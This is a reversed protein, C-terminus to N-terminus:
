PAEEERKAGLIRNRADAIRRAQEAGVGDLVMAERMQADLPHPLASLPCTRLLRTVVTEGVHIVIGNPKVHKLLRDALVRATQDAQVSAVAICCHLAFHKQERHRRYVVESLANFLSALEVAYEALAAETDGSLGVRAGEASFRSVVQVSPVTATQMRNLTRISQDLLTQCLLFYPEALGTSLTDLLQRPDDFGIRIVMPDHREPVPMPSPVVPAPMPPTDVVVAPTTTSPTKIMPPRAVVRYLGWLLAHLLLSLLLPLWQARVIEGRSPEILTLEVSGVQQQDVRVVQVFRAGDRTPANGGSSLVHKNAALIRLSAVDPRDGYRSTLLALAVTDNTSLGMQADAALQNITLAGQAARTVDLQHATGQVMFAAHLAFSTALLAAYLGQRPANLRVEPLFTPSDIIIRRM